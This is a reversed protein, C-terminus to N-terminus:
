NTSSLRYKSFFTSSRERDEEIVGLRLLADVTRPHVSWYGGQKWLACTPSYGDGTRNWSLEYGENIRTLVEQQAKTYNTM